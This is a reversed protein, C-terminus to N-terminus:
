IWWKNIKGGTSKIFRALKRAAEKRKFKLVRYVKSNDNENLRAIREQHTKDLEAKGVAPHLHEIYLDPLFRARGIYRAVETIWLDNYDTFFYPPMYYGVAKVWNKHLFNLTAMRENQIGDKGYVLVIKDNVKEFEALVMEDWNQTRFVADDGTQMVIDYTSKRCLVNWAEALFVRPAIVAKVRDSELAKFGEIGLADDDDLYFYVEIRNPDKALGFAADCFRKM